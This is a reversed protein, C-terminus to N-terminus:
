AGVILAGRRQPRPPLDQSSARGPRCGAIARPVPGAPYKRVHRALVPWSNRRRWRVARLAEPQEFGQGGLYRCGGRVCAQDHNEIVQLPRIRHRGHQEGVKAPVQGGRADQHDRGVAILFQAPVSGGLCGDRREDALRARHLQPEGPQGLGLDGILQLRGEPAPEVQPYYGPHGAAGPTVREEHGLEAPQDAVRRGGPPGFGPRPHGPQGLAHPRDDALAQRPQGGAAPVHQGRGRHDRRRNIDPSDRCGAPQGGLGDEGPQVSGAARPQDPGRGPLRGPERVRQDPIDDARFHRRGPLDAHVAASGLGEFGGVGGVQVPVGAFDVLGPDVRAGSGCGRWGEAWRGAM